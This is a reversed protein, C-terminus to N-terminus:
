LFMILFGRIDDKTVRGSRPDLVMVIYLPKSAPGIPAKDVATVDRELVWVDGERTTRTWQGDEPEPSLVNTVDAGTFIRTSGPEIAVSTPPCPFLATEEPFCERSLDFGAVVRKVTADTTMANLAIRTPSAIRVRITFPRPELVSTSIREHGYAAANVIGDQVLEVTWNKLAADTKAAAPTQALLPLALAFALPLFMTRALM